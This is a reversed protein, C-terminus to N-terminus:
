LWDLVIEVRGANIAQACHWLPASWFAWGLRCAHMCACALGKIEGASKRERTSFFLTGIYCQAVLVVCSCCLCMLKDRPTLSWFMTSILASWARSPCDASATPGSDCPERTNSSRPLWPSLCTPMTHAQGFPAELNYRCTLFSLMRSSTQTSASNYCWFTRPACSAQSLTFNSVRLRARAQSSSLRMRVLRPYPLSKIPCCHCIERQRDQDIYRERM